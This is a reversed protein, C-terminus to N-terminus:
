VLHRARDVPRRGRPQLQIWRMEPGMPEDRLLTLGMVDRYFDRAKIQDTVPVSVIAISM